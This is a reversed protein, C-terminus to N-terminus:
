VFSRGQDGLNLFGIAWLEGFSRDGESMRTLRRGDATLFSRDGKRIIWFPSRGENMLRYNTTLCSREALFEIGTRSRWDQFERFSRSM